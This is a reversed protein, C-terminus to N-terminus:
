TSYRVYVYESASLSASLTAKITVAMNNNPTVPVRSVNIISVPNYTTELVELSDDRQAWKTINFTYYRGNTVQTLIPLAEKFDANWDNKNYLAWVRCRGPQPLLTTLPSITVANPITIDGYQVVPSPAYEM